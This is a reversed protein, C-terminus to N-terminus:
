AQPRDAVPRRVASAVPTAPEFLARAEPTTWDWRETEETKAEGTVSPTDCGLPTSSSTSYDPGAPTSAERAPAAAQVPDYKSLYDDIASEAIMPALPKRQVLLETWTLSPVGIGRGFTLVPSGGAQVWRNGQRQWATAEGDLVVSRDAPEEPVQLDYSTM